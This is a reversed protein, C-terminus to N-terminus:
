RAQLSEVAEWEGLAREIASDLAHRRVALLGFARDNRPLLDHRLGDMLPGILAHEEGAVLASVRSALPTVTLFPINVAPRSLLMLDRIRDILAGYSLTEPGGLDLSAGSVAQSDAAAALCGLVDREDIPATRRDRWAPILLVPLREILRVLFRFSRSRAGIVISARFAVSDPTASLLVREVALRSALHVSPRGDAPVLGGLYVIRRVRARVAARAFRLAAVREREAFTGDTGGTGGAEMSHLLYYATEVGELAADLGDGSIADGIVVPFRPPDDLEARRSFGIVDHGDALLKPALRSGIAGTIGTVLIRM